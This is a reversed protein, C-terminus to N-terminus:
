FMFFTFVLYGILVMIMSHKIGALINGESMKGAVLGSCFGQILIAHFFMQKVITPNIGSTFMLVSEGAPAKPSLVLLFSNLSFATFVFVAFAVYIVIMYSLTVGSREREQSQAALIDESSIDLIVDTKGGATISGKMLTVVRSVSASKTSKAFGTLAEESTGGWSIRAQMMKLHPTLAGLRTASVASIARPLSLGSRIASSLGRLFDPLWKEIERIRRTEVEYILMVPVIAIVTASVVSGENIGLTLFSVVLVVAAAPVSILLVRLPSKGISARFEELKHIFTGKLSCSPTFGGSAAEMKRGRFEKTLSSLIILFGISGAPIVVYVVAYLAASYFMGAAGLTVLLIVALMPGLGLGIVYAEALLGLTELFRKQHHASESRYQRSKDAFYNPISGGAQVVTVLSLLFDRFKESPSAEAANVLATPIDRGFYEVERVVMGCEKAAEGYEEELKSLSKFSECLGIGGSNAAYLYSAVDPVMLDIENRLKGARVSPYAMVAEYIGLGVVPALLVALLVSSLPSAGLLCGFFSVIIMGGAWGIILLVRAAAIYELVPTTIRARRLTTQLSAHGTKKLRKSFLKLGIKALLKM